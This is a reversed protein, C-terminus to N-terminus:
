GALDRRRFAASGGALFGVVIMTLWVLGSLEASPGPLVPSHAFPSTDMAWRPLGLLPGLDGVVFCATYAGWGVATARPSLGWVAFVLHVLGGPHTRPAAVTARLVQGGPHTRPAAVTARLVQGPDGIAVAHGLGTALGAVLLLWAVGGLAAILEAMGRAKVSTVRQGAVVLDHVGALEALGQPVTALDATVTTRSLHRPEALTGSVVVVGDRIISVRDCM